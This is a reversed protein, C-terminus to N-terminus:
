SIAEPWSAVLRDLWERLVHREGEALASTEPLTARLAIAAAAPGPNALAPADTIIAAIVADCALRSLRM